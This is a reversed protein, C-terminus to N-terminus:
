IANGDKLKEFEKVSNDLWREALKASEGGSKKWINELESKADRIADILEGRTKRADSLATRAEKMVEDFAAVEEATPSFTRVELNELEAAAIRRITESRSMDTARQTASCISAAVQEKESELRESVAKVIEKLIQNCKEFQAWIASHDENLVRIKDFTDM